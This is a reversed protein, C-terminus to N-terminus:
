LRRREDRIFSMQYFSKANLLKNELHLYYIIDHLINYVIM